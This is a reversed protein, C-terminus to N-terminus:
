SDKYHGITLRIVREVSEEKGTSLETISFVIKVDYSFYNGPVFDSNAYAQKFLGSVVEVPIEVSAGAAIELGILVPNHVPYAPVAAAPTIPNSVPTYTLTASNVRVRSPTSAATTNSAVAFTFKANDSAKIGVATWDYYAVPDYVGVNIKDNNIPEGSDHSGNANTDTYTEQVLVPDGSTVDAEITYGPSVSVSVTNFNTASGSGCGQAAVVFASLCIIKFINKLM